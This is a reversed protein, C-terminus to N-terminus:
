IFLLLWHILLSCQQDGMYDLFSTLGPSYSFHLDLHTSWNPDRTYDLSPIPGMFTRLYIYTVSYSVGDRAVYYSWFICCRVLKLLTMYGKHVDM